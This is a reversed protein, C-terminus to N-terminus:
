SHNIMAFLIIVAMCVLLGAAENSEKPKNYNERISNRASCNSAAVILWILTWASLTFVSLLLHLIHNTKYESLETTYQQHKLLELM